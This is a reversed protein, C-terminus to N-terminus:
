VSSKPPLQKRQEIAPASEWSPRVTVVLEQPGGLNRDGYKDPRLKSLLWKRTDIRLKRHETMDTIVTETKGDSKLTMKEGPQTRDSIRIADEAMWDLWVGRAYAYREPFRDKAPESDPPAAAWSGILAFSPMGPEEAMDRLSQGKLLGQIVREALEPSYITDVIM